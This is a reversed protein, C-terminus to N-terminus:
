HEDAEGKISASELQQISRDLQTRSARHCMSVPVAHVRCAALVPEFERHGLHSVVFVVGSVSGRRIRRVLRRYYRPEVQEYEDCGVANGLVVVNM